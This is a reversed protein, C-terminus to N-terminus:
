NEGWEGNVLCKEMTAQLHCFLFVKDLLQSLNLGPLPLTLLLSLIQLFEDLCGVGGCLQSSGLLPDGLLLKWLLSFCLLRYSGSLMNHAAIALCAM